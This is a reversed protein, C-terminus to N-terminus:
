QSDIAASTCSQTALHADQARFLIAGLRRVAISLKNGAVSGKAFKDISEEPGQCICLSPVDEEQDDYVPEILQSSGDGQSADCRRVDRRRKQRSQIDTYPGGSVNNVFLPGWNAERNKWPTHLRRPIRFKYVDVYLGCVFPWTSRKLLVSTAINVCQM